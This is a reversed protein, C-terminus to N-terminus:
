RIISLILCPPMMYWKLTKPIVRGPISGRDGPGNYEVWKALPRTYIYILYTPWSVSIIHKWVSSSRNFICFVLFSIRAFRTLRYLDFDIVFRHLADLFVPGFYMNVQQSYEWIASHKFLTSVPYIFFFYEEYNNTFFLCKSCPLINLFIVNICIHNITM